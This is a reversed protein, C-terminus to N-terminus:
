EFNKIKAKLEEILKISTNTQAPDIPASSTLLEKDLGNTTGIKM